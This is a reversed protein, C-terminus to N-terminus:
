EWRQEPWLKLQTFGQWDDLERFVVSNKDSQQLQMDIYKIRLLVNYRSQNERGRNAESM